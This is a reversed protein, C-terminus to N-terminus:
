RDAVGVWCQSLPELNAAEISFFLLVIGKNAKSSGGVLFRWPSCKGLCQQGQLRGVRFVGSDKEPSVLQTPPSIRNGSMVIPEFSSDVASGGLWRQSRNLRQLVEKRDVVSCCM